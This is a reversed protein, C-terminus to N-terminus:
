KQEKKGGGGGNEENKTEKKKGRRNKREEGKKSKMLYANLYCLLVVFRFSISRTYGLITHAHAFLRSRLLICGLANKGLKLCFWVRAPVKSVNEHFLTYFCCLVVLNSIKM